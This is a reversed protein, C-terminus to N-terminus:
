HEHHEEVQPGIQGGTQGGPGDVSVEVISDAGGVVVTGCDPWKSNIMTNRTLLRKRTGGPQEMLKIGGRKTEDPIGGTAEILMRECHTTHGMNGIYSDVRKGQLIARHLKRWMYTCHYLHFEWSVYLKEHKGSLAEERPVPETSNWEMWYEWDRVPDDGLAMFQATLDPDYCEDPLWSFSM